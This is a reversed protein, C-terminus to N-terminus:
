SVRGDATMRGLRGNVVAGADKAVTAPAGRIGSRRDMWADIAAMDYNGTTVDPVPFGRAELDARVDEFGDISLGLRRAAMEAPVDRPNIKFRM